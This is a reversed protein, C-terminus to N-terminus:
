WFYLYNPLLCVTEIDRYVMKTFLNTHSNMVDEPADNEASLAGAGGSGPAPAGTVAPLSASLSIESRQLAPSDKKKLSLHTYSSSSQKKKREPPSSM